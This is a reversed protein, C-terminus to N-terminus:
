GFERLAILAFIILPLVFELVILPSFIHGRSLPRLFLNQIWESDGHEVMVQRTEAPAWSVVPRWSPSGDKESFMKYNNRSFPYLWKVGWGTGFTDHMFHLLSAALFLMAWMDGVLLWLGLAGTPVYVLPYHLGDRHDTPNDAHAAVERTRIYHWIADVDPLWAFLAGFLFHPWAPEMGWWDTVLYAVLLGLAIDLLPM